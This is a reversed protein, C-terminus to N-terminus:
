SKPLCCLSSGSSDQLTMFSASFYVCVYVYCVVFHHSYSLTLWSCFSGNVLALVPQNIFHLLILNCSLTCFLCGHTWLSLFLHKFIYIIFFLDEM